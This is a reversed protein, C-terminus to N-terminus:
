RHDVLYPDPDWLLFGALHQLRDQVNRHIMM